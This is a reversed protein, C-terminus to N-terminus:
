FHGPKSSAALLAESATAALRQLESLDPLLPVAMLDSALMFTPQRASSGAQPKGLTPYRQSFHTLLVLDANM